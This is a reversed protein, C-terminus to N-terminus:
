QGQWNLCASKKRTNAWPAKPAHKSRERSIVTMHKGFQIAFM